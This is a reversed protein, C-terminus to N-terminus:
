PHKRTQQSPHVDPFSFRIVEPIRFIDRGAIGFVLPETASMGAHNLLATVTGTECHAAMRHEFPIETLNM